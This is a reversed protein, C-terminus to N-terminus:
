WWYEIKWILFADGEVESAKDYILLMVPNPNEKKLCFVEKDVDGEIIIDHGFIRERPDFEFAWHAMKEYDDKDEEGCFERGISELTEKSYLQTMLPYEKLWEAKGGLPIKMTVVTRDEDLSKSFTIDHFRLKNIDPIEAKVLDFELPIYSAEAAGVLGYEQAIDEGKIPPDNTWDDTRLLLLQVSASGDRFVEITMHKESFHCAPFVILFILCPIAQFLVKRFMPKEGIHRIPCHM